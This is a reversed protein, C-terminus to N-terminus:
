EIYRYCPCPDESGVRFWQRSAALVAERIEEGVERGRHGISKSAHKASIRHFMLLQVEFRPAELWIVQERSRLMDFSKGFALDGMIDSSYFKFWRSADFPEGSFAKIQDMFDDSYKIVRSEYGRLAPLYNTLLYKRSYHNTGHLRRVNRASAAIGFSGDRIMRLETGRPKCRLLRCQRPTM